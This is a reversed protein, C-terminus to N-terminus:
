PLLSAAEVAISGGGRSHKRGDKRGVVVGCRRWGGQLTYALRFSTPHSAM